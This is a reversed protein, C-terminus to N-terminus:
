QGTEDQPDRDLKSAPAIDTGSRKAHYMAQDAAHLLADATNGNDPYIAVGISASVMFQRGEFEVPRGTVEILKNGVTIASATDEITPLLVLFEDGGIRGVTDSSRVAEELRSATAKLVEDGTAHGYSDNIPKFNNLDVYLLAVKNRNREALQMAQTLRDTLLLRNALGTLSDHQAMRRMREESKVLLMSARLQRRELVVLGALLLLLAVGMAASRLLEIRRFRSIDQMTPDLDETTRIVIPWRDNGVTSTMRRREDFPSVQISSAVTPEEELDGEIGEFIVEDTDDVQPLRFYPTGDPSVMSFSRGDSETGPAVAEGLLQTNFVALVVWQLENSGEDDDGEPADTVAHSLAAVRTGRHDGISTPESLLGGSTGTEEHKELMNQALEEPVEHEGGWYAVTGNASMLLYTNILSDRAEFLRLLTIARAEALGPVDPEAGPDRPAASTFAERGEIVDAIIELNRDIEQLRSNILTRQNLALSQTRTQAEELRRQQYNETVVMFQYSIIGLFLLALLLITAFFPHTSPIRPRFRTM